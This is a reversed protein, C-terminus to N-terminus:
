PEGAGQTPRTRGDAVKHQPLAPITLQNRFRQALMKVLLTSKGAGNSGVIAIRSDLGVDLNVGKLILKDPTYGFGV